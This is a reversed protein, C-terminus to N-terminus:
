GLRRGARYGITLVLLVAVIAGGLRVRYVLQLKRYDEFRQANVATAEVHSIGIGAQVAEPPAPLPNPLMIVLTISSVVFALIM